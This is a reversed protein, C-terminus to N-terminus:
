KGVRETATIVSSGENINKDFLIGHAARRASSYRYHRIIMFARFQGKQQTYIFFTYRGISLQASSQGPYHVFYYSGTATIVVRRRRRM